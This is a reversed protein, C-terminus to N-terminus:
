RKNIKTSVVEDVGQILINLTYDGSEFEEISVYTLQSEIPLMMVVENNADFIQIAQINSKANFCLKEVSQCYYISNFYSDDTTSIDLTCSSDNVKVIRDEKKIPDTNNIGSAVLQSSVLLIFGLVLNKVVNQM